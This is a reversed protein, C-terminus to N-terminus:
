LPLQGPGPAEAGRVLQVVARVVDEVFFPRRIVRTWSGPPDGHVASALLVVPVTGHRRHLETLVEGTGAGPAGDMASWDVVLGRVPGRGPAHAPQALSGALTRTGIADYGAERLAARLLARPWQDAMVILIRPASPPLAPLDGVASSPSPPLRPLTTHCSARPGTVSVSQLSSRAEPESSSLTLTM